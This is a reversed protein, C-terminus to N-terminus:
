NSWQRKGAAVTTATNSSSDSEERMFPGATVRGVCSRVRGSKDAGNQKVTETQEKNDKDNTVSQGYIYYVCVCIYIYNLKLQNYFYLMNKYVITLIKPTM